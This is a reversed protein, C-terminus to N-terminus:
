ICVYQLMKRIFIFIIDSTETATARELVLEVDVYLDVVVQDFVFIDVTTPCISIDYTDFTSPTTRKVFYAGIGM